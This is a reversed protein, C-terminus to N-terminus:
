RAFRHELVVFHLLGLVIRNEGAYGGQEDARENEDVGIALGPPRELCNGAQDDPQAVRHAEGRQGDPM